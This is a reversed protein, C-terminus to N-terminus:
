TGEGHSMQILNLSLKLLIDCHDGIDLQFVGFSAGRDLLNELNDKGKAHSDCSRSAQMLM